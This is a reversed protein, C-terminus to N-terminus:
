ESVAAPESEAVPVARAIFRQEPGPAAYVQYALVPREGTPVFGHVTDPPVYVFTGPGIEVSRDGVRMTGQGDAFWLAEVIGPHTHEPVAVSPDGDLIGLSNIAAGHRAADLFVHVKLKGGANIFPGTPHADSYIPELAPPPCRNDQPPTSWDSDVFPTAADRGIVVFLRTRPGPPAVLTVPEASPLQVAQGHRVWREGDISVAGREVLVSVRQCASVPWRIARGGDVEATLFVVRPGSGLALMQMPQVHRAHACGSALLAVAFLTPKM